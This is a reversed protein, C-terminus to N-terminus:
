VDLKIASFNLIAQYTFIEFIPRETEINQFMEDWTGKSFGCCIVEFQEAFGTMIM